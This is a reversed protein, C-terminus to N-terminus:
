SIMFYGNLYLFNKKNRQVSYIETRYLAVFHMFRIGEISALQRDVATLDDTKQAM